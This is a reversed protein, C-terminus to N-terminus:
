RVQLGIARAFQIMQDSSMGTLQQHPVLQVPPNDAFSEKLFTRASDGPLM